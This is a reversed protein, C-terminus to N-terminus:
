RLVFPTAPLLPQWHHILARCCQQLRLQPAATRPMLCIWGSPPAGSPEEKTSRLLLHLKPLLQLQQRQAKTLSLFCLRSNTPPTSTTSPRHPPLRARPLEPHSTARSPPSGISSSVPPALVRAFHPLLFRRNKRGIAPTRPPLRQVKRSERSIPAPAPM